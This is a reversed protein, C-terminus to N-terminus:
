CLKQQFLQNETMEIRGIFLRIYLYQTLFLHFIVYAFVSIFRPQYFVYFCLNTWFKVMVHNSCVLNYKVQLPAIFIIMNTIYTLEHTSQLIRQQKKKDDYFNAGVNFLRWIYRLLCIIWFACFVCFNNTARFHWATSIGCPFISNFLSCWM